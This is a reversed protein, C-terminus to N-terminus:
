AGEKVKAEEIWKNESIKKLMDSSKIKGVKKHKGEIFLAERRSVDYEWIQNYGKEEAVVEVVEAVTFNDMFIIINASEYLMDMLIDEGLNVGSMKMNIMMKRLAKRASGAHGTNWTINGAFAGNFFPMAEAGRIEGFVYMDISMLLGFDTFEKIGYAEGRSNRKVLTQLANPHKLFFEAHEEMVLMRMEPVVEELLARLLTTKGAGGRGVIIGNAGAKMYSILDNALERTLMGMAILDDITFAEGKHKRFVICPSIHLLPEIGCIIRLKNKHDEFKALAKNENIEGKLSAQITRIYSVLNEKSGFNIDTKVMKKGIKVWVNDPANAFVGSCGEIDLYEQILGYGFIHDEVGRILEERTKDKVIYNRKNIVKIIVSELASMPAKSLTVQNILQKNEQAVETAIKEIVEYISTYVVKNKNGKFKKQAAREEIRNTIM